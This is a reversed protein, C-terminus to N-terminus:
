ASPLTVVVRTGEGTVSTLEVAGGHARVLADVIALGLGSGQVDTARTRSEEARYFRDFAHAAQEQTMGPGNDSVEFSVIGEAQSDVRVLVRTGDPTHQLANSILNTFVQALREPDGLVVAAPTRDRPTAVVEHDNALSGLDSLVDNVLRDLDIREQMLPRQQDLRALLLLDDVILGMRVATREIRNMADATQEPKSVAGQRYLEAYGRIATLPTRLEHSADAVFQRMKQESEKAARESSQQATFGSEIRELMGNLSAGLRGVETDPIDNDVRKTLDGAAIAHATQEIDSLPRLSAGVVWRAIVALALLALGAVVGDVLLLRTWTAQIGQLPVGIAVSAADPSPGGNVPLVLVRWDQGGDGSVTFPRGDHAVVAATDFTPLNPAGSTTGPSVGLNSLVRGQADYVQGFYAVPPVFGGPLPNHMPMEPGAQGSSVLPRVSDFLQQDVRDYLYSRLLWASLSAVLLVTAAALVLTVIVLQTRLPTRERLSRKLTAEPPALTSM